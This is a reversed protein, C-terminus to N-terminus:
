EAREVPLESWSEAAFEFCGASDLYLMFHRVVWHGARYDPEAELLDRVWTSEVVEVVADYAGEIHWPTCCSEARHQMARVREFTLGSSFQEGERDFQFQITASGGDHVLVPGETIATSPTPITGREVKHM